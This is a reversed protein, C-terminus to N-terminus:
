FKLARSRPAEDTRRAIRGTIRVWQVAGATDRVFEISANQDAGSTVVARDPGYFAIPMPADAERNRPRVQVVVHGNEARVSVTNMPREYTGLYPTPDPQKALPTVAPLTENLGRHGIAQNMTFTAGQYGGGAGGGVERRGGGG